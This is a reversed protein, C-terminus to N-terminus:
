AVKFHQTLFSRIFPIQAQMERNITTSAFPAPAKFSFREELTGAIQKYLEVHNTLQIPVVNSVAPIIDAKTKLGAVTAFASLSRSLVSCLYQADSKNNIFLDAM